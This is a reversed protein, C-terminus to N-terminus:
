NRNNRIQKTKDGCLYQHIISMGHDGIYCGELNLKKWKRHSRSLFFGLSVVQHPLLRNESVDIEGSDFSQSLVECLKNDQAEQFCQFLYQVKVPDKLVDQSITRTNFIRQDFHQSPDTIESIVQSDINRSVQKSTSTTFYREASSTMTHDHSGGTTVMSPNLDNSANHIMHSQLLLPTTMQDHSSHSHTTNPTCM